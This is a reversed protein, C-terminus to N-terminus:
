KGTSCVHLTNTGCLDNKWRKGGRGRGRRLADHKRKGLNTYTIYRQGTSYCSQLTSFSQLWSALLVASQGFNRGLELASWRQWRWLLWWSFAPGVSVAVKNMWADKAQKTLLFILSTLALPATVVFHSSSFRLHFHFMKVLEVVKKMESVEYYTLVKQM